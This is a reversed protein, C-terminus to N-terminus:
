GRGCTMGAASLMLDGVDAADGAGSAAAADFGRGGGRGLRLLKSRSGLGKSCDKARGELSEDTRVWCFEGTELASALSAWGLDRGPEASLVEVVVVVGGSVWLVTRGGSAAM